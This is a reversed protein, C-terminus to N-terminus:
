AQRTSVEAVKHPNVCALPILGVEVLDSHKVSFLKQARGLQANLFDADGDTVVAGRAEVM